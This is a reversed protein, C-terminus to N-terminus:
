AFKPAGCGVGRSGFQGEMHGRIPTAKSRQPRPGAPLEAGRGAYERLFPVPAQFDSHHSSESSHPALHTRQVRKEYEKIKNQKTKRAFWNAEFVCHRSGPIRYHDSADVITLHRAPPIRTSCTTRRHRRTAVSYATISWSLTSNLPCQNPFRREHEGESLVSGNGIAEYM